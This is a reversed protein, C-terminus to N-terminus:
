LRNPSKSTHKVVYLVISAVFMILPLLKIVLVSEEPQQAFNVVPYQILTFSVVSSTLGISYCLWFFILLLMANWRRQYLQYCALLALLNVAVAVGVSLAGGAMVEAASFFYGVLNSIAYLGSCLGLGVVWQASRSFSTASRSFSMFAEKTLM